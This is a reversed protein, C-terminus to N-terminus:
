WPSAREQLCHECLLFGERSGRGRPPCRLDVWRQSFHDMSDCSMVCRTYGTVRLTDEAREM